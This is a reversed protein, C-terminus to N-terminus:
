LSKPAPTLRADLPGQHTCFKPVFLQCGATRAYGRGRTRGCLSNAVRKRAAPQPSLPRSPRSRCPPVVGAPAKARM